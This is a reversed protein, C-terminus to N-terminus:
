SSRAVVLADALSFRGAHLATGVIAGEVGDGVLNRLALIDSLDGVGGSAVIPRDTMAAVRRLLELNPGELVGDRDVDTVVYRACGEADLRQVVEVLVGVPGSGGRAALVQGRVDLGMTLRDGHEAVVRACWDPRGLAGTAINARDAGTALAATLSADNDIGGSIQVRVDLRGVIEALLVGNEGRGYAADLDVLHIWEAGERQRDLAAEIPDGFVTASGADGRALQVARGGQVDVAPLLQLPGTM